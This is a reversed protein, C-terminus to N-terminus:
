RAAVQRLQQQLLFFEPLPSTETVVISFTVTQGPAVAGGSFVMADYPETTEHASAFGSSAFPRVADNAQGFSLGDGYTSHRQLTERLELEYQTWRDETRNIAIKTLAFGVLHQTGVRNGFDPGLGRIVLVPQIPGTVEEIVVFPDAATGRGSAKVITFGGLEDSFVLGEIEVPAALAPRFLGAAVLLCACVARYM